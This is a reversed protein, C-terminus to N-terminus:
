RYEHSLGSNEKHVIRRPIELPLRTLQEYNVYRAMDSFSAVTIEQKGQRGILVVEDGKEVVPINSVDVMMMNMNVMGAVSAKRGGILVHGLNSLGRPFGHAYGIPVTAFKRTRSTMYSNGYGIFQGPRVTKLSMVRSKWSLVRQLPDHKFKSDETLLNYMRTERSPWFGYQAIGIRVLDLMTEPYTLTAASSAVHRYKPIINNDMLLGYYHHYMDKQKQIRLYNAVSEAGAFHTCVGEVFIFERNRNILEIAKLIESEELGTRNMGTELELHIRAAKNLKKAAKITQYLRDPEFIFYTLNNEIAWYLDENDIMTMIMVNTEPKKIKLTIEAEYADSVAFYDIGCQEALPLFYKIKHGYANGKIVSTFKVDPGLKTKLFRINKALATKNLEIYSTNKM